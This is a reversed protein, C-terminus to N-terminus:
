CSASACATSARARRAAAGPRDRPPVTAGAAERIVQIREAPIRLYEIIDQKSWESVTIIAAASHAAQAVLRRTPMPRPTARYEPLALIIVDHITRTQPHRSTRLPPAFHPM